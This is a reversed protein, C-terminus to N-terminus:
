LIPKPGQSRKKKKKKDPGQEPDNDRNYSVSSAVFPTSAFPEYLYENSEKLFGVEEQNLQQFQEKGAFHNIIRTYSFNRNIESAKFDVPSDINALKFSIGYTGGTNRHETLDVGARGLKEKFDIYSNSHRLSIQISNYIIHKQTSHLITPKDDKVIFEPFHNRLQEFSYKHPLANDKLYFKNELDGYVYYSIGKKTVHRIYLNNEMLRSIFDSHSKSKTYHSDLKDLLNEKLIPKIFGRKQFMIFAEHYKNQHTNEVEANTMNKSFILDIESKTFMKEMSNKTSYDRLSKRLLSQFRYRNQHIETLKKVSEHLKPTAKLSYKKELEPTFSMSRRKSDRLNLRKGSYDVTSLIVHVHDHKKDFHRFIAAPTNDWKMQELYDNVLAIYENDELTEGHQLNVSLHMCPYKVRTNLSAIDHFLPILERPKTDDYLPSSLLEAKGKAIKKCHYDIIGAFDSTPPELQIRM